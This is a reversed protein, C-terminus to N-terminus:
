GERRSPKSRWEELLLDCDPKFMPDIRDHLWELLTPDVVAPQIGKQALAHCPLCVCTLNPAFWRLEKHRRSLIHHCEFPGRKTLCNECQGFSRAWESCLRDLAAEKRKHDSQSRPRLPTRRM